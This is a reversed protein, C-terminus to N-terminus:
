ADREMTVRTDTERTRRSEAIVFALDGPYYRAAMLMILGGVAYIPTFVVLATRLDTFEKLGGIVLPALGAASRVVSRLAAARGRLEAVVVDTLLADAPAVPLTLFVGGIVFLVATVVINHSAFGPVFLATAVLSAVVCVYIRANVIGRRLLRDAVFGGLVVGVAAGAGFTVAYGGAASDSLGHVEKFYPIGWFGLGILLAQSVTIGVVGFWMSKIRFLERYVERWDHTSYDFTGVRSPEPLKLFASLEAANVSAMPDIVTEVAAIDAHLDDDQSGRQPEPTRALLFVVATGFPIWMWFAARWGWQDVVVGALGLGLASGVLAGSNYLGIRKAREAVPYYDCLLSISAPGNAEVIGVGLRTIFLLAFTPALASVGMVATWVTMALMLLAIRKYRDALHGFPISGVAGVITMASPLAGIWFDSVHFHNQIGEAAHSLSGREGSELMVTAALAVVPLSGYRVARSTVGM